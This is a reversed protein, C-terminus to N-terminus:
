RQHSEFFHCVHVVRVLIEHGAEFSLAGQLCDRRPVRWVTRASLAITWPSTALMAATKARVVVLEPALAMSMSRALSAIKVGPAAPNSMTVTLKAPVSAM